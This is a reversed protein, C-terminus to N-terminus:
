EDSDRPYDFLLMTGTSQSVMSWDDFSFEIWVLGAPPINYINADSLYNALETFGPNHGFLAIKEFQNDLSNITKLLTPISAEYISAETRLKHADINWVKAFHRATTLARTATSSVLYEPVLGKEIFRNAMEPADQHGIRTLARQVDNTGATPHEAKGHRVLLLQKM